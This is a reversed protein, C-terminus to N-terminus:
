VGRQTTDDSVVDADDVSLAGSTEETSYLKWYAVQSIDPVDVVMMTQVSDGMDTPMDIEGRTIEKGGKDFFVVAGIWGKEVNNLGITLTIGNPDSEDDGTTFSVDATGNGIKETTSTTSFPILSSNDNSQLPTDSDASKITTTGTGVTKEGDGGHTLMYVATGGGGILVLGCAIGIVINRSKKSMKGSTRRYHGRGAKKSTYREPAIRQQPISVDSKQTTAEVTKDATANNNDNVKIRKSPEPRNDTMRSTVELYILNQPM